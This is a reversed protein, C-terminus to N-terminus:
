SQCIAKNPNNQRCTTPSDVKQIIFHQNPLHRLIRLDASRNNKETLRLKGLKLDVVLTETEENIEFFRTKFSLLRRFLM